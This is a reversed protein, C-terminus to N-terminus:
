TELYKTVKRPWQGRFTACFTSEVAVPWPFYKGHWKGHGTATSLSYTVLGLGVLYAYFYYRDLSQCLFLRFPLLGNISFITKLFM